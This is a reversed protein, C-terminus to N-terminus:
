FQEGFSCAYRRGLESFSVESLVLKVANGENTMIGSLWVKAFSFLSKGVEGFMTNTDGNIGIDFLHLRGAVAIRVANSLM